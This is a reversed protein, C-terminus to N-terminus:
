AVAANLLQEVVWCGEIHRSHLSCHMLVAPDRCGSTVLIEGLAPMASYDNARKMAAAVAFAEASWPSVQAPQDKAPPEFVDKVMECTILKQTRVSERDGRSLLVAVLDAASIFAHYPNPHLTLMAVRDWSKCGMARQYRDIEQSRVDKRGTRETVDAALRYDYTERLLQMAADADVRFLGAAKEATVLAHRCAPLRIKGLVRRACAVALLLCRRNFDPTGLVQGLLSRYHPTVFWASNVTM